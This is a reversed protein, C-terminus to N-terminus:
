ELFLLQGPYIISSHSLQNLGLLDNLSINHSKAITAPCDGKKVQYTRKKQPPAKEDRATQPPPMQLLFSEIQSLIEDATAKDKILVGKYTNVSVRTTTETIREIGVEIKLEPATAYIDTRKEYTDIQRIQLQMKKMAQTSAVTTNYHSETFTRYAINNMNYKFLEGCGTLIGVVVTHVCGSAFCLVGFSLLLVIIPKRMTHVQDFTDAFVQECAGFRREGPM